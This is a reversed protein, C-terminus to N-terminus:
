EYPDKIVTINKFGKSELKEKLKTSCSIIQDVENLVPDFVEETLHFVKYGKFEKIPQSFHTFVIAHYDSITNTIEAQINFKKLEASINYHIRTVPYTIDNGTFWGVKLPLKQFILKRDLALGINAQAQYSKVNTQLAKKYDGKAFYLVSLESNPLFSYYSAVQTFLTTGFGCQTAKEFHAIAKDVNTKKYMMGLLYHIEAYGPVLSMAQNLYLEATKPESEFYHKALIICGAVRDDLAGLGSKVYDQMIPIGKDNGIGLLDRSYYFQTRPDTPNEDYSLKLLELNRESDNGHMRYHHIKIDPVKTWNFGQCIPLIEHIRSKFRLAPINRFIRERPLISEINGFQDHSYVYDIFYIDHSLTQKLEQLKKYDEPKLLDDGDGWMIWDTKMKDIGFNRAKSFDKVWEFYYHEVKFEECIQIIEESKTTRIVVVQDFLSREQFLSNLLRRFEFVEDKIIMTWGLTPM